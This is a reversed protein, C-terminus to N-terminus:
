IKPFIALAAFAELIAISAVLDFTGWIHKVQVWSGWIEDRKTRRDSTKM